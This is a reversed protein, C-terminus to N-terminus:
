FWLLRLDIPEIICGGMEQEVAERDIPNMYVLYVAKM